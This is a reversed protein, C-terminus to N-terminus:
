PQIKSAFWLGRSCCVLMVAGVASAAAAWAYPETARQGSLASLAEMALVLLLGHVFLYLGFLGGIVYGVVSLVLLPRSVPDKVRRSM